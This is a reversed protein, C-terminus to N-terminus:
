SYRGYLEPADTLIPVRIMNSQSSVSRGVVHISFVSGSLTVKSVIEVATMRTRNSAFFYPVTIM